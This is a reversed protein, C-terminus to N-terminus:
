QSIPFKIGPPSYRGLVKDSPMTVFRM